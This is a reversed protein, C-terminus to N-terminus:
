ASHCCWVDAKERFVQAKQAGFVTSLFFLVASSRRLFDRAEANTGVVNAVAIHMIIIIMHDYM